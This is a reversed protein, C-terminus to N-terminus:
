LCFVVSSEDIMHTLVYSGDERIFKWKEDILEPTLYHTNSLTSYLLSLSYLCVCVCLHSSISLLYAVVVADVVVAIVVVAVVVVVVVTLVVV